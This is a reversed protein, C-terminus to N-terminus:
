AVKRPRGRKRPVLSKPIVVEKLWREPVSAHLGNASLSRNGMSEQEGCQNCRVNNQTVVVCKASCKPCVGEMQKATQTYGM